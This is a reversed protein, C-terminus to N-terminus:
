NRLFHFFFLVVSNVHIDLQFSFSFAVAFLSASSFIILIFTERTHPYIRSRSQVKIENGSIIAPFILPSGKRRLFKRYGKPKVTSRRRGEPADHLLPKHDEM